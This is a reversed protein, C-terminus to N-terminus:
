RDVGDGGGETAQWTLTYFRPLLGALRWRLPATRRHAAAVEDLWGVRVGALGAAAFLGAPEDVSRWAAGPTPPRAPAPPGTRSGRRRRRDIRGLVGWFAREARHRARGAATAPPAFHLADIVVIRGGPALVRRWERLAAVPDPVAWFAMRSTVLDATGAALPLDRSEAVTVEATGAPPGGAQPPPGASAIAARARELMGPAIDYGSVHHGMRALLLTLEGTGCGVDAVRLPATGDRAPHGALAGLADRWAARYRPHGHALDGWREYRAAQTSWYAAARDIETTGTTEANGGPIMANDGM